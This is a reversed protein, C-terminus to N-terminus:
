QAADVNSTPGDVISRSGRERRLLGDKMPTLRSEFSAARGRGHVRTLNPAIQYDRARAHFLRHVCLISAGFGLFVSGSNEAGVHGASVAFFTRL